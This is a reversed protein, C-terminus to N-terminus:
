RADAAQQQAQAAALSAQADRDGPRLRLATQFERVAGDLEGLRALTNGLDLHTRAHDPQVQLAQRYQEAAAAAQGSQALLTGLNRRALFHAPRLALTARYEAAAADPQRLQVLANGLNNHFDANDPSIKLAERYEAAAEDTRRQGFLAVGLNYHFLANDPATKIAERLQAVAEDVRNQRFFAAALNARVTAQAPQISLAQQYQDVADEVRGKQLLANGLDARASVLQPALRIAERYQLIAEDPSGKSLLGNGLNNRSKPDRPALRVARQYLRIAEDGEGKQLLVNGLNGCSEVDDPNIELAKRYLGAAEDPRGETESLRGLHDYAAWCRPNKALADHWLADTNRFTGARRWSATGLVLLLAVAAAAVWRRPVRLGPLLALGAGALALPGMSALYVLHDAVFSLRFYSIEVLGSVPSLAVLFCGFALLGARAYPSRRAGWCLALGVAVAAVLPLFALLRGADIEWRPYVNILPHPWALKGLYFWVVDGVTALRQSTSRVWADDNTAEAVRWWQTWASLFAALLSLCFVPAIERLRRWRWGGDVWWALLCLVAPLVMTSTKAAMALAACVLMLAYAWAAGAQTADGRRLFLLIALLYFAGSLTNKMESIWAVSEAQVPHLAWLAAGLWAGRVRLRGLVRWLLLANLGHLAINALHYPLPALGWLRHMAWLATITLPCIDAAATTWVAGLGRTGVISPNATLMQDDDWLYGARLAPLYALVVALLLAGGLVAGRM